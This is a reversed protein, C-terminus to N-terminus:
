LSIPSLRSALSVIDPTANRMDLTAINVIEAEGIRSIFFNLYFRHLYVFDRVLGANATFIDTGDKSFSAGKDPAQGITFVRAMIMEMEGYLRELASDQRHFLIARGSEGLETCTPDTIAPVDFTFPDASYATRIPRWMPHALSDTKMQWDKEVFESLRACRDVSQRIDYYIRTRIEDPTAPRAGTRARRRGARNTGPVAGGTSVTINSYLKLDTNDPNSVINIVGRPMGLPTVTNRALAKGQFIDTIIPYQGVLFKLYWPLSVGSKSLNHNIIQKGSLLHNLLTKLETSGEPVQPLEEM